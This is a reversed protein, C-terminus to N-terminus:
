FLCCMYPITVEAKSTRGFAARVKRSWLVQGSPHLARGAAGADVRGRRLAQCDCHRLAVFSSGQCLGASCRSLPVDVWPGPVTLKTPFTRKPSRGGALFAAGSYM